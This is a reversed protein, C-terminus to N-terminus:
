LIPKVAMFVACLYLFIMIKTQKAGIDMCKKHIVDKFSLM